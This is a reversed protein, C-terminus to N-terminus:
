SVARQRGQEHRPRAREKRRREGDRHKWEAKVREDHWQGHSEVQWGQGMYCRGGEFEYSPAVVRQQDGLARAEAGTIVGSGAAPLPVDSAADDEVVDDVPVGAEATEAACVRAPRSERPPETEGTLGNPGAVADRSATDRETGAVRGAEVDEAGSFGKAAGGAAAAEGTTLFGAGAAFGKAM